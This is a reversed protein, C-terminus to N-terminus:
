MDPSCSEAPCKKNMVRKRTSSLVLAYRLEKWSREQLFEPISHSPWTNKIQSFNGTNSKKQESEIRFRFGVAYEHEKNLLLGISLVKAAMARPTSTVHTNKKRPQKVETAEFTFVPSTFFALLSSSKLLEPSRLLSTTTCQLDVGESCGESRATNRRWRIRRNNKAYQNM